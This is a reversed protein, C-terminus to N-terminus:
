ASLSVCAHYDRADGFREIEGCLSAESSYALATVLV